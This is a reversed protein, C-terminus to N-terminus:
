WRLAGPGSRGACGGSSLMSVRIFISGESPTVWKEMVGEFHLSDTENLINDLKIRPARFGVVGHMLKMRVWRAANEEDLM